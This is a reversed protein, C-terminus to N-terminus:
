IMSSYELLNPSLNLNLLESHVGCDFGKPSKSEDTFLKSPVRQFSSVSLNVYDSEELYRTTFTPDFLPEFQVYGASFGNLIRAHCYNKFRWSGTGTFRM